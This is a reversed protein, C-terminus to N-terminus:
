PNPADSARREPSYHENLEAVTACRTGDSTYYGGDPRKIAYGSLEGQGCPDATIPTIWRMVFRQGTWLPQGKAEDRREIEWAIIPEELWPGSPEGNEELMRFCLAWGPAAPITTHTVTTMTTM